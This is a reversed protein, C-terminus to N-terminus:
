NNNWGFRSQLYYIFGVNCSSNSSIQWNHFTIWESHPITTRKNKSLNEGFEADKKEQWIFLVTQKRVQLHNAFCMSSLLTSIRKCTISLQLMYFHLNREKVFYDFKYIFICTFCPTPTFCITSWTKPAQSTIVPLLATLKIEQLERSSSHIKHEMEKGHQKKLLVKSSKVHAWFLTSQLPGRKWRNKTEFILVGLLSSTCRFLRQIIRVEPM